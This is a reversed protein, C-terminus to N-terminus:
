GLRKLTKPMSILKPILGPELQAEEFVLESVNTSGSLSDSKPFQGYSTKTCYATLAFLARLSKIKFFPLIDEMDLDYM